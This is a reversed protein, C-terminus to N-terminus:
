LRNRIPSRLSISSAPHTQSPKLQARADITCANKENVFLPNIDLEEIESFDTVLQALRILIEELLQIKVPPIDRYGKLLQYVKTEEMLRKALMRNLPPLAIAPDKLVETLTGGM